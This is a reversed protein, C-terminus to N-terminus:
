PGRSCTFSKWGGVTLDHWFIWMCIQSPIDWIIKVTGQLCKFIKHGGGGRVNELLNWPGAIEVQGVGMAMITSLDRLWSRSITKYRNSFHKGPVSMLWFRVSHFVLYGLHTNLSYNTPKNTLSWTSNQPIRLPELSILLHKPKSLSIWLLKIVIDPQCIPEPFSACLCDVLVCNLSFFGDFHSVLLLTLTLWNQEISLCTCFLCQLGWLVLLYILLFIGLHFSIFDLFM